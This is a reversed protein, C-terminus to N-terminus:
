GLESYTEILTTQRAPVDDRLTQLGTYDKVLKAIQPNVAHKYKGGPGVIQRYQPLYGFRSAQIIRFVEEIINVPWREEQPYDDLIRKVLYQLEDMDVNM